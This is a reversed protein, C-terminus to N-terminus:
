KDVTPLPRGNNEGDIQPWLWVGRRVRIGGCDIFPHPRLASVVPGHSLICRVEVASKENLVFSKTERLLTYAVVGQVQVSWRLDLSQTITNKNLSRSPPQHGVLESFRALLGRYKMKAAMYAIWAPRQGDRALKLYYGVAAETDILTGILQKQVQTLSLIADLQRSSRTISEKLVEFGDYLVIGFGRDYTRGLPAVGSVPLFPELNNLSWDKVSM